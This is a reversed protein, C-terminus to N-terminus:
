CNPALDARLRRASMARRSAFKPEVSTGALANRVSREARWAELLAARLGEKLREELTRVNQRSLGLGAAAERQSQGLVYRVHHVEQLPAQLSGVYREVVQLLETSLWDQEAV